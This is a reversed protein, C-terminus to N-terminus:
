GHVQLLKACMLNKLACHGSGMEASVTIEGQSCVSDKYIGLSWKIKKKVSVEWYHRGKSFIQPGLVCVLNDFWKSSKPLKQLVVGRKVSKNDEVVPLYQHM